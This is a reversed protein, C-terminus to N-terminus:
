FHSGFLSYFPIPVLPRGPLCEEGISVLWFSLWDTACLLVSHYVSNWGGSGVSPFVLM